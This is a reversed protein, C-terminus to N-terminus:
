PAFSQVLVDQNAPTVGPNGRSDTWGSADNLGTFDCCVRYDNAGAVLNPPNTPNV